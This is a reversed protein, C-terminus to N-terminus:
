SPPGRPTAFYNRRKSGGERDCAPEDVRFDNSDTISLGLVFQCLRSLPGDVVFSRVILVTRM